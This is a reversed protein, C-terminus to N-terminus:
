ANRCVSITNGLNQLGNSILHYVFCPIVDHGFAIVIFLFGMAVIVVALPNAFLLKSFLLKENKKTLSSVIPIFNIIIALIPSFVLTMWLLPAQGNYSRYLITGSLFNYFSLNPHSFDAQVARGIFDSVLLLFFPLLLISGIVNYRNVLFTKQLYRKMSYKKIM